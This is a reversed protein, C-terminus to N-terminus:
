PITASKPTKGSSSALSPRYIRLYRELSEALNEVRTPKSIFDNMGAELCAEKDLQMAAATMAIIYPPIHRGAHHARIRRTAELGDMEPMQVDMLIVDYNVQECAAVTEAGNAVVDADYGLRKLMRLAVKQNVLNDEALLIKLPYRSGLELDIDPPPLTPEPAAPLGGSLLILENLLQQPKVPKYILRMGLAEAQERIHSDGITKMLLIDLDPRLRRATIALQLGDIGPMQLDVLLLDWTLESQLWARLEDVHATAAVEIGWADLHRQLIMRSAQNDDILLAHRGALLGTQASDESRPTDEVVDTVLTFHFTSGAMEQSEAWIEGGMLETLRKSIALGLGTGGYKRTNSTDVQSFPQFLAQLHDAAIGIGSDRVAFHVEIRKEEVTRAEVFLYVEGEQTFKIANSLLNVLIQRLRMPDGWISQPVDPTVYFCLELGKEAAKPALLDLTEEVSRRVDLPQRELGLKGFEAKSLDLIDNLIALLSDSSLRITDVYIRQEPSLQTSLLLSTMGVVGNMPTRIEHSMNALFESKARTAAEAMEKATRLTQEVQKRETIITLNALVQHPRGEEDRALVTERSQIWQWEGAQDLVRYEIQGASEDAHAVSHWHAHVAARDEPHIYASYGDLSAIAKTSHNLLLPRNTYLWEGSPIDWIYIFDPSNEALGRFRNESQQRESIEAKLHANAEALEATRQIVRQELQDRAQQLLIQNAELERNSISLDTATRRAEDASAQMDSLLARTLAVNLVMCFLIYGLDDLTSQVESLPVSVGWIELLFTVTVTGASLFGALLMIRSGFFLGAIPILVFYGVISPSHITKFVFAHSYFTALYVLLCIVFAVLNTYGRRLLILGGAVLVLMFLQLYIFTIRAQEDLPYLPSFMPITLLVLMGIFSWSFLYLWRAIRTKDRDPFSPPTLLYELLNTM